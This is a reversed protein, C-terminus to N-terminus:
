ERDGRGGAITRMLALRRRRLRARWAMQRLNVAGQQLDVVQEPTAVPDVAMADLRMAEVEMEAPSANPHIM